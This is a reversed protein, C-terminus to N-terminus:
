PQSKVLETTIVALIPALIMGGFGWLRFGAYLAALTVLPDLGLQKGLLRPELVSRTVAVAAYVATLGLAQAPSGQVLRILAWPLLVTGSGLIPMADVLAVILAWLPAYRIRLLLFGLCMVGFSIACLKAQATLWSGLASRVRKLTPLVKERWATPIRSSLWAKLDPFRASIMYGSIVATGVTLASNPIHGLISTAIGPLQRTVGEMWAGEGSFLDLVWRTLLGRMGEPTRQALTLLLDELSTLGQRATQEMDPLINALQGLQRILASILLTLLTLALVLTATVGLIAGGTRPLHLHRTSLCVLPEAAAALLFGLLFPLALGLAYRVGLWLGLLVAVLFFLKRVIPNQM